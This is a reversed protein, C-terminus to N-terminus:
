PAPPAGNDPPFEARLRGRSLLHAWWLCLGGGTVCLLRLAFATRRVLTNFEPAIPQGDYYLPRPVALGPFLLLLLAAATLLSLMWLAGSRAWAARRWVGLALACASAWFSAGFAFLAVPREAAFAALPPMVVPVKGKAMYSFFAASSNLRLLTVLDSISLLAMVGGVAALGLATGTLWKSRGEEFISM